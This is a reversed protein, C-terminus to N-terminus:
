SKLKKLVFNSVYWFYVPYPLMRALKLFFVFRWPFAIEFKRKRLGTIIRKSAEQPTMIFPMPFDNKATMPTEVFGPNVISMNVGYRALDPYLSEALSILAAKTSGYAAAQPLGRYGAVSAVIAIHGQGREMFPPMVAGLVYHVGGVNIDFSQKATEANFDKAGMPHWVAACIVVLDISGLQESIAKNTTSVAESSGIDVPFPVILDSQAKLEILKDESRASAAVKVGAAALDVALQRGIGTSAGIIWATKWPAPM